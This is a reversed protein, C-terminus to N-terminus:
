SPFKRVLHFPRRDAGYTLPYAGLTKCQINIKAALQGQNDNKPLDKQM